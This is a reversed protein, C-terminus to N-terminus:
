CANRWSSLARQSSHLWYWLSSMVHEFCISLLFDHFNFSSQTMLVYSYAIPSILSDIYVWRHINFTECGMVLSATLTRYLFKLHYDQISTDIDSTCFTASIACNYACGLEATFVTFPLSNPNPAVWPHLNWICGSKVCQYYKYIDTDFYKEYSM